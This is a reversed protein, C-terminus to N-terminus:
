SVVVGKETVGPLVPVDHITLTSDDDISFIEWELRGVVVSTPKKGHEREFDGIVSEIYTIIGLSAYKQIQKDDM